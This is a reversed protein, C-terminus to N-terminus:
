KSVIMLRSLASAAALAWNSAQCFNTTLWSLPSSRLKYTKLMDKTVVHIEFPDGIGRRWLGALVKGPPTDTVVLIDIDSSYIHRDEAVSGFLYIEAEPDLEKVARAIIKPHRSLDRFIRRRRKAEEILM